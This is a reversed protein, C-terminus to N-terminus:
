RARYNEQMSQMHGFNELETWGGAKTATGSGQVKTDPLAQTLEYAVGHNCLVVWLNKLWTMSHLPAFDATYVAGLNADELATCELLPSLDKVPVGDMELLKLKKCSALPTIDSAQIYAIDLYTLEPMYALFDLNRITLRSLDLYVMNECYRLNYAGSDDMYYVNHKSPLFMTADTRLPIGGVTVTWVLNFYPRMDERLQAMEENSLSCNGLFVTNADPFYDMLEAVEGLSVTAAQTLDLETVDSDCSIGCVTKDWTMCTQPMADRLAVLNEASAAPEVIHLNMLQTLLRLLPLEEDTVGTLHAAASNDPLIVGAIQISFNIRRMQCYRQLMTGDGETCVVQRLQTLHDLKSLEEEPLAPIEVQTADLEWFTDGIRISYHLDLHPYLQQLVRLMPYDQCEWAHISKLQPFCGIAAVDDKNLSTITIEQSDWPFREGSVPIDWQVFTYPMREQIKQYHALSINEGELNLVQAERDYIKGDILTYHALVTGLGFGAAAIVVVAAALICILKKQTM